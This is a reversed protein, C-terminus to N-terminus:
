CSSQEVADCILDVTPRLFGPRLRYCVAGALTRAMEAYLLAPNRGLLSRFLRSRSGNQLHALLALAAQSAPCPELRPAQAFDPHGTTEAVDIITCHYTRCLREVQAFRAPDPPGTVIFGPPATQGRGPLADVHLHADLEALLGPPLTALVVIAVTPTPEPTPTPTLTIVQGCGALFLVFLGYVAGARMSLIASVCQKRM